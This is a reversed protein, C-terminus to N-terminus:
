GIGLKSLFRERGVIARKHTGKGILVGDSMVQATFTIVKGDFETVESTCEVAAGAKSPRLHDVDLNIGVTTEGDKLEDKVSIRCTYEILAIMAPTGYVPMDGSGLAMATDAEMVTTEFRGKIGPIIAM